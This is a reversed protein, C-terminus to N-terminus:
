RIRLLDAGARRRRPRRRRRRKPGNIESNPSKRRRSRCRPRVPFFSNPNEACSMEVLPGEPASALQTLREIPVRRVAAEYQRFRQTADSPMTFAGPDEVHLNVELVKGDEIVHFREIVHLQKTHPTAFLDM